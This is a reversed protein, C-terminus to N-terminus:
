LIRDAAVLAYAGNDVCEALHRRAGLPHLPAQNTDRTSLTCHLSRLVLGLVRPLQPHQPMQLAAEVPHAPKLQPVAILVLLRKQHTVPQRRTPPLPLEELHDDRDLQYVQSREM